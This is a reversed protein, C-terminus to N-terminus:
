YVRVLETGPYYVQLIRDYSHGARARGIAGWQCMGAGHGYGRGVLEVLGDPSRTVEFRTSNLIRGDADRLALRIDLRSLVLEFSSGHFALERVRGSETREVVELDELEGLESGQVGFKRGLEERVRGNLEEPGFTATWRYRPSTSCFDTGDPARDSVSRLYPAPQRDLVEDVAATRGGCTSHYFARIPRGEHVLIHGATERIARTAQDREALMGGYVQDEVSGYLDFGMERHGGLHAITYTRAAVAQAKVAALEAPDRPGIELPVVGLLYEELPLANIATVGSSEVARVEVSGRYPRGDIFVPAEERAEFRVGAAPPVTDDAGGVKVSWGHRGVPLVRPGDAVGLLGGTVADRIRLGAPSSVTVTDVGVLIGVLIEPERFRDPLAREESDEGSFPPLRGESSAAPRAPTRSTSVAHCASFAVAVTLLLGPCPRPLRVIM